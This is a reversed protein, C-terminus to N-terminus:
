PIIIKKSEGNKRIVYVGRPLDTISKEGYEQGNMGFIQVKANSDYIQVSNEELDNTLPYSTYLAPVLNELDEISFLYLGNSTYTDMCITKCMVYISDFEAPTMGGFLFLTYASEADISEYFAVSGDQLIRYHWSGKQKTLADSTLTPSVYEGSQTHVIEVVSDALIHIDYLANTPIDKMGCVLKDGVRQTLNLDKTKLHKNDVKGYAYKQYAESAFIYTGDEIVDRSKWFSGESDVYVAYLTMNDNPYYRTGAQYCIPTENTSSIAEESWGYFLWGNTDRMIPLEIGSGPETEQYIKLKYPAFSVLGVVYSELPKLTYEIEYSQVYLSNETAAIVINMSDKVVIAKKLELTIPVYATSFSGAWDSSAFSNVSKKYVTEGDAWVQMSGAGASSNSRMKLCIGSVVFDRGAYITLMTYNGATMQGSQGYGSQYFTAMSNEPVKGSESVVNRSTVTYAVNEAFLSAYFGLLLIVLLVKKM